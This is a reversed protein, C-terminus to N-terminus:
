RSDGQGVNTLADAKEKVAPDSASKLVVGKPTEKSAKEGRAALARESEAKSSPVEKEKPADDKEAEPEPEEPKERVVERNEDKVRKSPTTGHKKKHKSKVEKKKEEKKPPKKAKAKKKPVPQPEKPRAKWTKSEADYTMSREARDPRAFGQM